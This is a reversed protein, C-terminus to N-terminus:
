AQLEYAQLVQEQARQELYLQHSQNSVDELQAQHQLLAALNHAVTHGKALFGPRGKGQTGEM